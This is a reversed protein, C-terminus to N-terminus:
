GHLTVCCGHGHGSKHGDTGLDRRTFRKGNSSIEGHHTCSHTFDTAQNTVLGDLVVQFVRNEISKTGRERRERPVERRGEGGEKRKKRKRRKIREKREEDEKVGGGREKGEGEGRGKEEEERGRGERKRKGKGKRWKEERWSGFMEGCSSATFLERCIVLKCFAIASPCCRNSLVTCFM